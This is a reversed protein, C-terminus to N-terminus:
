TKWIIFSYSQNDLLLTILFLMLGVLCLYIFLLADSWALHKFIDSILDELLFFLNGGQCIILCKFSRAILAALLSVTYVLLCCCCCYNHLLIILFCVAM